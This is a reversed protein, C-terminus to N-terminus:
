PTGAIEKAMAGMLGVLARAIAVVGQPAHKGRATVRRFRQCRRGQAKWSSDQSPQPLQELRRQLHRSVQAPYRYAWAGEVLARRAQIHGAQTLAGQRRREGSSSASPSLGLGKMRQRPNAVRTLAGLEAVTTVAV